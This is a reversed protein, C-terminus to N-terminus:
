IPLAHTPGDMTIPCDWERFKDQELNNLIATAALREANEVMGPGEPFWIWTQLQILRIVREHPFEEHREGSLLGVTDDLDFQVTQGRSNTARQPPEM